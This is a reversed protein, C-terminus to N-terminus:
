CRNNDKILKSTDFQRSKAYRVLYRYSSESIRKDRALIWLYKRSPDGVIAYRYNKDLYIIWYDGKFPWFFQIKLKANGSNAVIFGKGTTSNFKGNKRCRNTVKVYDKTLQYQASTCSCGRQFFAPLRAIEYWTGMYRKVNVYKVTPLPKAAFASTCCLLLFILSIKKM